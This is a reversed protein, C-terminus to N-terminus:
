RHLIANTNAIIVAIGKLEMFDWLLHVEFINVMSLASHIEDNCFSFFREIQLEFEAKRLSQTNEGSQSQGFPGFSVSNLEIM